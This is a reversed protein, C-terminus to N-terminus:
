SPELKQTYIYNIPAPMFKLEGDRMEWKGSGWDWSPDAAIVDGLRTKGPVGATIGTMALYKPKFASILKLSIISASPMGVRSASAAYVVEKSLMGIYKEEIEVIYYPLRATIDVM